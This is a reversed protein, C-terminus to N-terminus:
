QMDFKQLNIPSVVGQINKKLDEETPLSNSHTNIDPMCLLAGTYLMHRPLQLTVSINTRKAVFSDREVSLVSSSCTVHYASVCEVGLRPHVYFIFRACM